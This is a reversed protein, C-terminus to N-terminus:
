RPTPTCSSHLFMTATLSSRSSTRARGIPWQATTASCRPPRLRLCTRKVRSALFCRTTWNWGYLSPHSVLSNLSAGFTISTVVVVVALVSGLLASRMPVAGRGSRAGLASRIGTLAAPPLGLTAAAGAVRSPHTSTAQRQSARNPSLRFATFLAASSLVLVLLLSGFGLVTWDFAIGLTPYVPRVAGLPSLPSLGVAVAVALVAGAAVAGTIGILGDAARMAPSAGLARLVLYDDASRRLLRSINQSCILLAALMAILGFIGFSIAEPRVAREAKDVFPGTTQTGGAPGLDPLLKKVRSLVAAENRTGGEIQLGTYSYYACCTALRRTLAPTLVAFQDGLAADDDQVIQNSSEVIGVLKLRISLYPKDVPYGAFASSNVQSDTFFVLPLTSGVHLRLQDAGGQSMVFEDVHAPDTMRGRILSM